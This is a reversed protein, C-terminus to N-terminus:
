FCSDFLVAGLPHKQLHILTHNYLTNFSLSLYKSSNGIVDILAHIDFSTHRRVTRGRQNM